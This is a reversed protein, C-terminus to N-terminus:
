DGLYTLARDLKIEQLLGRGTGERGWPGIEYELVLNVLDFSLNCVYRDLFDRGERTGM